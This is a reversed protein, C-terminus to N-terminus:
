LLRDILPQSYSAVLMFLDFDLSIWIYPNYGKCSGTKMRSFLAFGAQVLVFGTLLAPLLAGEGLGLLPFVGLLVASPWTCTGQGRAVGQRIAYCELLLLLLVVAAALVYGMPGSVAPRQGARQAYAALLAIICSLIAPWVHSFFTDTDRKMISRRDINNQEM